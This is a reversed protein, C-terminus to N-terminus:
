TTSPSPGTQGANMTAFARRFDHFGYWGHKGAEPMPSGDALKAAQQIRHFEPWIDRRNRNWPFVHSDFSGTRKRLHDVLAPHLSIREDRKGKNGVVEARTIATANDLDIDSWKLSM